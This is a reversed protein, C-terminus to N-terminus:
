MTAAPLTADATSRARARAGCVEFISISTDLELLELLRQGGLGVHHHEVVEIQRLDAPRYCITGPSRQHLHRAVDRQLSDGSSARAPASTILTPASV